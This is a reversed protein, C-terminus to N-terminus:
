KSFYEVLGRFSLFPLKQDAHIIYDGKPSFSAYCYDSEFKLVMDGEKINFLLINYKDQEALKTVLGIYNCNPEWFVFHLNNEMIHFEKFDIIIKGNMIDCLYLTGRANMFLAYKKNPSLLYSYPSIGQPIKCNKLDATEYVWKGRNYNYYRKVESLVKTNKSCSESEKLQQTASNRYVSLVNDANNLNLTYEKAIQSAQPSYNELKTYGPMKYYTTDKNSRDIVEIINKTVFSIEDDTYNHEELLDVNALDMLQFKEANHSNSYIIGLTGESNIKISAYTYDGMKIQRDTPIHLKILEGEPLTLYIERTKPSYAEIGGELDGIYRHGDFIKVRKHTITNYEWLNCDYDIYFSSDQTCLVRTAANFVFDDYNQIQIKDVLRTGVGYDLFYLQRLLHELDLNYTLNHSKLILFEKLLNRAITPEGHNLLDLGYNSVLETQKDILLKNISVITDLALNLQLNIKDISDLQNSLIISDSQIRMIHNSMIISDKQLITNQSEIVKNQKLFYGGVFLGILAITLVGLWASLRKKRQYRAYRMWLTDFNIDFMQAVIKIASAERGMENINIALLEQEKPLNLLSTPFCEDDPRTSHPTGGIIFPIIQETRGLDIFTQVEKCVWESKAAHPSCVVILYKSSELADSIRKALVGGSLESTDTFVPRIEKPLDPNNERLKLPLRYHELKNQLWKAWKEDERKYSIFAFYKFEQSAM